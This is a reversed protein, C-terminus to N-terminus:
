FIGVPLKRLLSSLKRVSKKRLWVERKGNSKVKNRKNRIISSKKRLSFNPELVEMDKCLSRIEKNDYFRWLKGKCKKSVYRRTGDDLLVFEKEDEEELGDFSIYAIGGPKLINIINSMAKLTDVFPIHDLVSNCIVADFKEDTFDIEQAPCVVTDISLQEEDAWKRVKKIAESSIDVAKVMFGVKALAISWHGYGCGLDLVKQVQYKKLQRITASFDKDALSKFDFDSEAFCKEWFKKNEEFIDPMKM